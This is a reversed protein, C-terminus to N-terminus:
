WMVAGRGSPACAARAMVQGQGVGSQGRCRDVVDVRVGGRRHEVVRDLAQGDPVRETRVGVCTATLPM